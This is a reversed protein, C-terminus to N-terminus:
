MGGQDLVDGPVGRRRLPHESGITFQQGLAVQKVVLLERPEQRQDGVALDEVVTRRREGIRQERHGRLAAVDGRLIKWVYRGSQRAGSTDPGAAPQVRTVFGAGAYPPAMTARARPFRAPLLGAASTAASSSAVSWTLVPGAAVAPM